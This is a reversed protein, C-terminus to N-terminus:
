ATAKTQKRKPHALRWAYAQQGILGGDEDAAVTESNEGKGGGAGLLLAASDDNARKDGKAVSVAAAFTVRITDESAKDIAVGELAADVVSKVGPHKDVGMTLAERRIQSITKGAPKLDPALAVSDGIVIAREEAAKEIQEQGPEKPGAAKLTEVQTSLEAIKALHTKNEADTAVATTEAERGAALAAEADAALKVNSAQLREVVAAATEDLELTLGDVVIKKMNAGEHDAVVCEPGGRGREVIAIHNGLIDTMWGDVAAGEPTTKKSDDFAFRYGCSMGSKGSMLDLVAKKDRVNVVTNVLDGDMAVTPDSFGVGVKTYNEADVWKGAPHGNTVPRKAFTPAAKAVEERPRYLKVIRKPDGPLDLESALYSQINGAKAITAPATLFGDADVVRQSETLTVFDSVICTRV